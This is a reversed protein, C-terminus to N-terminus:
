LSKADFADALSILMSADIGHDECDLHSCRRQPATHKKTKKCSKTTREETEGEHLSFFPLIM